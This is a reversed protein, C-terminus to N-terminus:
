LRPLRLALLLTAPGQTSRNRTYLMVSKSNAQEAATRDIDRVETVYKFNKFYVTVTNVYLEYALAYRPKNRVFTCAVPLVRSSPTRYWSTRRTDGTRRSVLASPEIAGHGSVASHM